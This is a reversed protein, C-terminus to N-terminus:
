RQRLKLSDIPIFTPDSASAKPRSSSKDCGCGGGCGLQVGRWAKWGLFGIYCSACGILIWTAILQANM